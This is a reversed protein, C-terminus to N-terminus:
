TINCHAVNFEESAAMTHAQSQMGALKRSLKNARKIYTPMVKSACLIDMPMSTVTRQAFDTATSGRWDMLMCAVRMGLNKDTTIDMHGHTWTDM